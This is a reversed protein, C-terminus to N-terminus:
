FERWELGRALVKEKLREITIATISFRKKDKSYRYKWRFGQPIKKDKQKCVRFYGTTNKIKSVGLSVKDKYEQSLENGTKHIITHEQITMPVLNWIENNLKDGDEHHIIINPPLTINYFDEFILRHLKKAYNGEKISTIVYYGNPQIKATGFKTELTQTKM